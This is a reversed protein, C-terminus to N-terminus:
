SMRQNRRSRGKHKGIDNGGRTYLDTGLITETVATSATVSAYPGDVPGFVRKVTGIKNQREDFVVDGIEPLDACRVILRGDPTVEKVKGLFDM